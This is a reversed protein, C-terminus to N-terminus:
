REKGQLIMTDRLRPSLSSEGREVCACMGWTKDKGEEVSPGASELRTRPSTTRSASGIESSVSWEPSVDTLTVHRLVPLRQSTGALM